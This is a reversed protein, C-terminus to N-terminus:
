HSPTADIPRTWAVSTDVDGMVNAVFQGNEGVMWEGCGTSSSESRTFTRPYKFTTDIQFPILNTASNSLVSSAESSDSQDQSIRYWRGSEPDFFEAFAHYSNNKTSWDPDVGSVIRAAIGQSRLSFVQVDACQNCDGGVHKIISYPIDNNVQDKIHPLNKLDNTWESVRTAYHVASEDSNRILGVSGLATDMDAKTTKIIAEDLNLCKQLEQASLTKGTKAGAEYISTGNIGDYQSRLHITAGPAVQFVLVNTDWGNAREKDLTWFDTQGPVPHAVFKLSKGNVEFKQSIVRQMPYDAITPHTAGVYGPPCAQMMVVQGGAFDQHDVRDNVSVTTNIVLSFAYRKQVYAPM